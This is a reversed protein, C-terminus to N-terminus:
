ELWFLPAGAEVSTAEDVCVRILKGARPARVPSFTKMVEVLALTANASVESGPEAFAASAPDPRLYVTGDTDARIVQVGEPVDAEDPASQATFAVAGGGEGAVVLVAGYEVWSGAPVIEIAVGACGPPVRLTLTKGAKRLTGVVQGEVLAAGLDLRPMFTGVTPSGLGADIKLANSM